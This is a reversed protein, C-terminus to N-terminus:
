QYKELISLIKEKSLPKYICDDVSPRKKWLVENEIHPNILILLPFHKEPNSLFFIGIKRAIQLGNLNPMTLAIFILDPLQVKAVEIGHYSNDSIISTHGEEKLINDLLVLDIPNHEIILIKM